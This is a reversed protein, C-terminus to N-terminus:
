IPLGNNRLCIRWIRSEGELTFTRVVDMKVPGMMNKNTEILDGRQESCALGTWGKNM